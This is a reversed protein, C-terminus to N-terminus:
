CRSGLSPCLPRLEDAIKMGMPRCVGAYLFDPMPRSFNESPAM